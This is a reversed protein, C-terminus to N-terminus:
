DPRRILSPDQSEDGLYRQRDIVKAPHVLEFNPLYRGPLTLPQEQTEHGAPQASLQKSSLASKTPKVPLSSRAEEEEEEM